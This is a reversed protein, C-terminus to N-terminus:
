VKKNKSKNQIDCVLLCRNSYRYHYAYRRKLFRTSAYVFETVLYAYGAIM